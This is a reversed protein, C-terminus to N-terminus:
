FQYFRETGIHLTAALAAMKLNELRCRRRFGLDSQPSVQHSADSHCLFVSNSFSGRCGDQFEKIKIEKLVM